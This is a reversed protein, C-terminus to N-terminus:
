LHGRAKGIAAVMTEELVYKSCPEPLYEKGGISSSGDLPNDGALTTLVFNRGACQGIRIYGAAEEGDMINKLQTVVLILDPPTHAVSQIAEYESLDALAGCTEQWAWHMTQTIFPYSKHSFSQRALVAM